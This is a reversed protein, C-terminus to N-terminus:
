VSINLVVIVGILKNPFSRLSCYFLLFYWEPLINNPTNLPNAIIENESNGLIDPHLYLLVSVAIGIM